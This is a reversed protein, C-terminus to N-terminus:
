TQHVIFVLVFVVINVLTLKQASKVGWFPRFIALFSFKAFHGLFEHDGGLFYRSVLVFVVINNKPGNSGGFPGFVPMGLIYGQHTVSM